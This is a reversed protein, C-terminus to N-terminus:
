DVSVHSYDTSHRAASTTDFSVAHDAKQEAHSYLGDSREDLGESHAPTDQPCDKSATNVDAVSFNNTFDKATGVSVIFTDSGRAGEVAVYDSVDLNLWTSSTEVFINGHECVGFVVRNRDLFDLVAPRNDKQLQIARVTVPRYTYFRELGALPDLEIEPEPTSEASDESKAPFDLAFVPIGLEELKAQVKEPDGGLENIIGGIKRFMENGGSEGFSKLMNKTRESLNM